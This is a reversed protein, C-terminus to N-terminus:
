CARGAEGGAVRVGEPSDLSTAVGNAADVVPLCTKWVAHSGTRITQGTAVEESGVECPVYRAYRALAKSFSLLLPWASGPHTVYLLM